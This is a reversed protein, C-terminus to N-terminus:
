CWPNPGVLDLFRSKEADRLRHLEEKSLEGKYWYCFLSFEIQESKKHEDLMKFTIGVEKQQRRSDLDVQRERLETETVLGLGAERHCVQCLPILDDFREGGGFREYTLHHTELSVRSNCYGCRGGYEKKIWASMNAWEESYIFEEYEETSIGYKQYAKM